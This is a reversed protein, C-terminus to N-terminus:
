WSNSEYGTVSPFYNTFYKLLVQWFIFYYYMSLILSFSIIRLHHQIYMYHKHIQTQAGHQKKLELIMVM